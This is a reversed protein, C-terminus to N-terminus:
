PLEVHVPVDKSLNFETGGSFHRFNRLAHYPPNGM